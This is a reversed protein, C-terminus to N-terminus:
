DELQNESEGPFRVGWQERLRDMLRMMFLTEEHPMSPPELLGARISDICEQVEYEFGSNQRPAVVTRVLKQDRSYIEFGLPNNINHTLVSGNDCLILGQRYNAALMTATLTAMRGDSYKLVITESVDVGEENKVCDTTIEAIDRGFNMVAFNLCYVGIDLLVGGGLGAKWVREKHCLPYGLHATLFQPRGIEGSEIIENLIRRAPQYRTWIAEALFLKKERALAIVSEAERANLMFSKECLVHRGHELCLRVHPFHFSHPTAVYVMEVMPDSVMDEYSGYAKGIGFCGAFELAKEMSRSAVAYIQVGDMAAVTRAMKEAIHGAGLIGIRFDEM